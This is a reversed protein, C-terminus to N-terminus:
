LKKLLDTKKTIFEDETLIGADRLEAFKRILDPISEPVQSPPYTLAQFRAVMNRIHEAAKPVDTKVMNSLREKVGRVNLVIEGLMIGRSEEVSSIDAYNFADTSGAVLGRAWFIVRRDTVLLYDHFSFMGGKNVHGLGFDKDSVGLGDYAGLLIEDPGLFEVVAQEIHARVVREGIYADKPIPM